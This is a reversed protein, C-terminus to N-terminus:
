FSNMLSSLIGFVKGLGHLLNKKILININFTEYRGNLMISLAVNAESARSRLKNGVSFFIAMPQSTVFTRGEIKKEVAINFRKM